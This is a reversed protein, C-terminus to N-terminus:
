FDPTSQLKEEKIAEGPYFSSFIQIHKRANAVLSTKAELIYLKYLISYQKKM